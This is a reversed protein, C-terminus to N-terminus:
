PPTAEEREGLRAQLHLVQSELEAIRVEPDEEAQREKKKDVARRIRRSTEVLGDLENEKAKTLKKQARGESLEAIRRSLGELQSGKASYELFTEDLEEIEFIKDYLEASTAGVFDQEVQEVVFCPPEEDELRRLVAVEGPWCGAVFLPSHASLVFQVNPFIDKLLTPVKQQWVPHLHADAEDILVIASGQESPSDEVKPSVSRVFSRILGFMALISLTGQSAYQIPIPEQNGETLVRIEFGTRGSRRISHFRFDSGTLRGACLRLFEFVPLEFRRGHEWYDLAIEYLLAQIVTAYPLQHLFHHAGHEILDSAVESDDPMVTLKSRDIFRSDPIALLPVKGISEIFRIPSRHITANEGDRELRVEIGPEGGHAESSFLTETAQEDRQLAGALARLLLSKGFGNRGLLINVNPELAWTASPFLVVDRLSLGRVRIESGLNREFDAQAKEERLRRVEDFQEFDGEDLNQLELSRISYLTSEYLRLFYRRTQYAAVALFVLAFGVATYTIGRSLSDFRGVVFADWLFLAGLGVLILGLVGVFLVFGVVLWRFEPATVLRSLAGTKGTQPLDEGNSDTM